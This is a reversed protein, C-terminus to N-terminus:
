FNRIYGIMQQPEEDDKLPIPARLRVEVSAWYDAYGDPLPPLAHRKWPFKM